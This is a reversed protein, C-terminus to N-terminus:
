HRAQRVLAEAAARCARAAADGGQNCVVLVALSEAPSAWVTCHWSASSGQHALVPGSSWPREGVVFGAAYDAGAVPAHMAKLSEASLLECAGRQVGLHLGIFKAWDRLTAHVRGAPGYREPHSALPARPDIPRGADGVHGWPEEIAGPEDASGPPGFGASAMGLPAFLGERIATEWTGGTSREVVAGALIFGTNSYAHAEGPPAAPERALAHELLALRQARVPERSGAVLALLGGSSRDEPLGSRHDVLQRVTARRFGAHMADAREPFVDALTTDWTLAGREVLRAILTATMAKTCSGLHWRDEITVAVGSGAKREGVAGIAAVEGRELVLGALAPVGCEARIPALLPALDSQRALAVLAALAWAAPLASSM